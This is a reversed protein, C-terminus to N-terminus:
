CSSSVIVNGTECIWSLIFDWLRWPIGKKHMIRYLRRKVERISGEAPNERPTYPQSVHFPIHARRITKMFATDAGTQTPIGDFTLHGPIGWDHIFSALTYGVSDGDAAHMHYTSAFGCRHSYVQSAINGAISRPTMWLTDTAFKGNLTRAKYFRDARYRRSLPLIASRIGRQTTAKLTAHARQPGIGFREALRNATVQQHRENSVFSQRPNVPHTDASSVRRSSVLDGLNPLLHDYMNDDMTMINPFTQVKSLSVEQPNWESSSTLAVHMCSSLKNETPTRTTFFVKTGKTQLPITLTDQVEIALPKENDYPNDWYNIKNHRIQNPNILSHDLKDGYFLAEHIVLIFTTGDMDTYATAGSVIPVNTIPDYSDDYPFVDATRMTYDLVIWNKGLCCTDANSDTENNSVIGTM